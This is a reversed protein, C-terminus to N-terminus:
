SFHEVLKQKLWARHEDDGHAIADFLTEVKMEVEALRVRLSDLEAQQKKIRADKAFVSIPHFIM